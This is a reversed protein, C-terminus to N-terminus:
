RQSTPGSGPTASPVPAAQNQMTTPVSSGGGAIVADPIAAGRGPLWARWRRRQKDADDARDGSEASLFFGAVHRGISIGVRIPM